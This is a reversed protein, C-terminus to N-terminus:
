DSCLWQFQRRISEEYAGDTRTKDCRAKHPQIGAAKYSGSSKGVLLMEDKTACTKIARGQSRKSVRVSKRKQSRRDWSEMM